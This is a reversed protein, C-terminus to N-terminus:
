KTSNLCATESENKLCALDNRMDKKMSNKLLSSGFGGFSEKVIVETDGNPLSEFSWNHVATIWWMKGTWGFANNPQVTHIRSKMKFGEAKWAFCKGEEADGKMNVETVGEFWGPWDNINAFLSYVTHINANIQISDVSYVKATSNAEINMNQGYIVGGYILAMMLLYNKKM